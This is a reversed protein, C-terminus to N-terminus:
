KGNMKRFADRERLAADYIDEPVMSGRMTTVLREAEGRFTAATAPDLTTVTLGRTNMTAVSDEYVKPAEAVVRKEFIKAAALVAPRDAADLKNWAEETMVVAGPLPVISVDLMYKADRFMQLLLAPYPPSPAADIMGTTLRLQAPVENAALAVPHFGNTKYWQVMRDNGQSTFLKAAKVDDLTRVPKKSFLQVWGASGWALLRFGKAQLRKELLPSLKDQVYQGEADSEFFFPMGFVNFSDDISALGTVMLLNAQLQDVGPRMMKITAEESGQTGGTGGPLQVRGATKTDWEAGMDLLAKHWTSGVPVQTALKITIPAAAAAQVALVALATILMATRRVSM